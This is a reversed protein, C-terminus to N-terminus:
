TRWTHNFENEVANLYKLAGERDYIRAAFQIKLAYREVAKNGKRFACHKLTNATKEIEKFIHKGDNEVSAIKM